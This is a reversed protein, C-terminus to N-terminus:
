VVSKRDLTEAQRWFAADPDPSRDRPPMDAALLDFVMARAKEVRAGTTTVKMGEAPRRICSAALVREGEVACMCARCNGDPRYGPAESHCLHPIAIGERRAVQWITEGPRAEVDRGDLIFRVGGTM